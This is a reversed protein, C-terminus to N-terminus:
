KPTLAPTALAAYPDVITAVGSNLWSVLFEKMQHIAEPSRAVNSHTAVQVGDSKTVRDYQFLGATVKGEHLNGHIPAAGASAIIEVSELAPAVHPVGLARVISRNCGPPVTDDNLVVNVLLQPHKAGAGPLRDGTVHPAYNASDGREILTQLVPFFRRVDGDVTDPPKMLTIVISFQAADRIITSVRGGPVSLIAAGFRDTLALLEPGMIGGLSVGFWAFHDLDVDSKGDGDFDGNVDLNTTLLQLLQLKDYTSQRWNDRLILANLSQTNVDIGFFSMIQLINTDSTASPHQGHAVADVSITAMGLPAAAEALPIGQDKDGGIGHGFMLVPYPGDELPLWVRVRLEYTGDPVTDEIVGNTRYDTAVFRGECTRLLASATCTVPQSWSYARARIDAAIATSTDAITQTTFVVAASVDEPALGTAGLLQAYRGHLRSLLPDTATGTLLERMTASPAICAGDAALAETTVVVGYRRAARLPVMPWFIATEGEDTVETEFPVRDGTELDVFRVATSAISEIDGSPLAGLPKSFRLIVGATTGFGDLTAMQEFVGTYSGPIAPLWPAIEEDMRVRLGTGTGAEDVTYYEDPFSELGKGSLPAYSARTTGTCWPPPVPVDAATTEEGAVEPGPGESADDPESADPEEVDAAALDSSNASSDPSGGDCAAAMLAMAAVAWRTTRM